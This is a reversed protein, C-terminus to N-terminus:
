DEIDEQESYFSDDDQDDVAFSKIEEAISIGMVDQVQEETIEQIDSLSEDIISTDSTKRFSKVMISKIKKIDIRREAIERLAIVANKDNDKSVLIPSGGGIDKGRKAAIAVLEFRNQIVEACDEVTIRAM